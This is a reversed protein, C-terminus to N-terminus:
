AYSNQPGKCVRAKLLPNVLPGNDNYNGKEDTVIVVFVHNDLISKFDWKLGREGDREALM